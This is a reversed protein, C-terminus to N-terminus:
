ISYFNEISCDKIQELGPETHYYDSCPNDTFFKHVNLEETFSKLRCYGKKVLKAPSGAFIGGIGELTLDKNVFSYRTLVSDSPIKAGGLVSTNMSLWVNDGICIPSTPTKINGTKIERICHINSDMIFSGSSIMAHDGIRINKVSKLTVGSCIMVYSGLEMVANPWIIFNAGKNIIVPGNIIWLGQIRLQAPIFSIPMEDVDRGIQVIGFKIPCKFKIKGSLARFKVKHKVILPLHFAEKFPLIKFNLYITPVWRVRLFIGVIQRCKRYISM